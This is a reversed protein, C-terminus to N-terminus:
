SRREMLWRRLFQKVPRVVLVCARRSTEKVSNRSIRLTVLERSENSFSAKYPQEGLMFDYEEAGSEIAAKIAFYHLLIGPGIKQLPKIGGTYVSIRNDYRINYQCAVAEGDMRLVWLEPWGMAFTRCIILKQFAMFRQSAFVGPRGKAMWRAQHLEALIDLAAMAEDPTEAKKFSLKGMRELAKIGQRIRQRRKHSLHSDYKEMTAPLAIYPCRVSTRSTSFQRKLTADHFATYAFSDPRVRHLVIDDWHKRTGMDLVKRALAHAAESGNQPMVPLDVYESFVEDREEEGTGILEFRRFSFLRNMRAERRVFPAIALVDGNKEAIFACLQRGEGFVEWWTSVWEWTYMPHAVGGAQQIAKWAFELKAIDTECHIQM